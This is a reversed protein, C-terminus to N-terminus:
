PIMEACFNDLQFFNKSTFFSNEAGWALKLALLPNKGRFLRIARIELCHNSCTPHRVPKAQSAEDFGLVWRRPLGIMRGSLCLRALRGHNPHGIHNKKILSATHDASSCDVQGGAIFGLCHVPFRRCDGM